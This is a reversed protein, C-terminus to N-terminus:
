NQDEDDDEDRDHRNVPRLNHKFAFNGLQKGQKLAQKTTPRFHFGVWIRAVSKRGKRSATIRTRTTTGIGTMM